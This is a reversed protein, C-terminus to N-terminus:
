LFILSAISNVLPVFVLQKELDKLSVLPTNKSEMVDLINRLEHITYSTNM